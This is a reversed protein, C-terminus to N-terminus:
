GGYREAFKLLLPLYEPCSDAVAGVIIRGASEGDYGRDFLELAVSAVGAM